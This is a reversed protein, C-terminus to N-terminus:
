EGVDDKGSRERLLTEYEEISQEIANIKASVDDPLPPAVEKKAFIRGHESKYFSVPVSLPRARGGKGNENM